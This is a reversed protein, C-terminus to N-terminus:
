SVLLELNLLQSFHPASAWAAATLHNCGIMEGNATYIGTARARHQRICTIESHNHLKAGSRAAAALFAKVVHSAKIQSEEPAYIAACVDPSLLPEHQRPADGRLWQRQLGLPHGAKM